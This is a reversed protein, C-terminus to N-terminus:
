LIKFDMWQVVNVNVNIEEKKKQKEIKMIM